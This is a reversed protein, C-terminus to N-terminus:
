IYHITLSASQLMPGYYQEFFLLVIAIMLVQLMASAVLYAISHLAEISVFVTKFDLGWGFM